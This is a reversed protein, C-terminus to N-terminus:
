RKDRQAQPYYYSGKTTEGCQACVKALVGKFEEIKGLELVGTTEQESEVTHYSKCFTRVGWSTLLFIFLQLAM